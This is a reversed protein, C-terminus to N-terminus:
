AQGVEFRLFASVKAGAEDLLAGVTKKSDTVSPQDLLCVDKFFGNLRGEVIKPLAQEPKGEERATAEAIEREKAVIDAPVEDRSVYQAKLAAIQMAAARAASEAAEGEGSYAVMVGVAPPLDSSRKHLYVAVPGDLKGVRRLVLKEGSKASFSVVADAVTAGDLEAANLADLDSIGQSAAVDVIKDALAIFEASKAVFDTESNLEIMVGDKIAVLGEATTREARKGVDKAGKIRLVEVAKDFDGDTEELAKKCDMMGSGTLERLRKVDAATYNAM